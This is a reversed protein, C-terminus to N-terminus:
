LEKYIAEINIPFQGASITLGFEAIDIEAIIEELSYADDKLSQVRETLKIFYESQIKLIENNGLEGHGPIVHDYNEKYLKELIQIWGQTNAGHDVRVFPIANNFILDGTHIANHKPFKVVINDNTHAAGFYELIVIDGGLELKYTEDFTIDAERFKVTKLENYFKVEDDYSQKLAIFEDSNKNLISDIKSKLQELSPHLINELIEKNRTEAFHFNESLKEHAIVKVDNPFGEVGNIHDIHSHTLILYKIPKDSVKKVISIIDKALSPLFSADVVVVGEATVLFAINGGGLDSIAYLNETIMKPQIETSQEQSYLSLNISLLLILLPICLKNKM